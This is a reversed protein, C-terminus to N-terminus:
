TTRVLGAILQDVFADDDSNVTVITSANEHSLYWRAWGMQARGIWRMSVLISDSCLVGGEVPRCLAGPWATAGRAYARSGAEGYQILMDNGCAGPLFGVANPAVGSQALDLKAPYTFTARTGDPSTVDLVSSDGQTSTRPVFRILEGSAGDLSPTPTASDQGPQSTDGRKAPASPDSLDRGLDLPLGVSGLLLGAVVLGVVLTVVRRWRRRARAKVM